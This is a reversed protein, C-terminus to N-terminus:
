QGAVARLPGPGQGSSRGGPLPRSSVIDVGLRGAVERSRLDTGSGAPEPEDQRREQPRARAGRHKRDIAAGLGARAHAPSAPPSDSLARTRRRRRGGGPACGDGGAGVAHCSARGLHRRRLGLSRRAPARPRSPARRHPALSAQRGRRHRRWNPIRPRGPRDGAHHVRRVALRRALRWRQASRSVNAAGAQELQGKADALWRDAVPAAGSGALGALSLTTLYGWYYNSLVHDHLYGDRAYWGLWQDLRSLVRARLRADMGPAHKLWDYGLASYAGFTRIGYGSDHRVVDAGGAGDGIRFRDDLLANLYRVAASAYRADGTAHWCLSTSALADAWQFGQYGSELDRSAAEECLASVVRWAPSDSQAANRLRARTPGDLLLRYGDDTATRAPALAVATGREPEPSSKAREVGCRKCSTVLSLALSLALLPASRM